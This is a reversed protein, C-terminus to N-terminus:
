LRCRHYPTELEPMGSFMRLLKDEGDVKLLFQVSEVAVDTSCSAVINVTDGDQKAATLASAFQWGEPLHLSPQVMSM